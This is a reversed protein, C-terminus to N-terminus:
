MSVSECEYEREGDRKREREKLIALFERIRVFGVHIKGDQHKFRAFNADGSELRSGCIDCVHDEEKTLTKAKEEFDLAKNRLKDAEEMHAKSAIINGSEALNEAESM